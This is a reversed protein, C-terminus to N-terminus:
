RRKRKGNPQVPIVADSAAIPAKPKDPYLVQMVIKGDEPGFRATVGEPINHAVRVPSLRRAFIANAENAARQLEALAADALQEEAGTLVIREAAM